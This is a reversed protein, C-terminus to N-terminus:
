NGRYMPEQGGHGKVECRCSIDGTGSSHLCSCHATVRRVRDRSCSGTCTRRTAVSVGMSTRAGQLLLGYTTRSGWLWRANLAAITLAVENGWSVGLRTNDTSSSYLAFENPGFRYGVVGCSLSLCSVTYHVARRPILFLLSTVFRAAPKSPNLLRQVVHSASKDARARDQGVQDYAKLQVAPKLRWSQPLAAEKNVFNIRDSQRRTNRIQKHRRFEIFDM